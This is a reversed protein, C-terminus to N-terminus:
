KSANAKVLNIVFNKDVVRADSLTFTETISNYNVVLLTDKKIVITKGLYPTYEAKIEDTAKTISTSVFYLWAFLFILLGLTIPIIKKM